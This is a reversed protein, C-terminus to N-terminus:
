PATCNIWVKRAPSCVSSPTGLPERPGLFAPSTQPAGPRLNKQVAALTFSNQLHNTSLKNIPVHQRVVRRPTLIFESSNRSPCQVLSPHSSGNNILKTVILHDHNDSWNDDSRREICVNSVPTQEVNESIHWKTNSKGRNAETWVTVQFGNKLNSVKIQWYSLKETSGMM